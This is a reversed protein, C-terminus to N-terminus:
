PASVLSRIIPSREIIAEIHSGEGRRDCGGGAYIGSLRGDECFMGSGSGGPGGSLDSRMRTAWQLSVHGTDVAKPIGGPHGILAVVQGPQCNTDAIPAPPINQNPFQGRLNRELSVVAYDMGGHFVSELVTGIPYIDREVTELITDPTDEQDFNFRVWESGPTDFCHGATFFRNGEILTGSCGANTLGVSPSLAEIFADDVLLDSSPETVPSGDWCSNILHSCEEQCNDRLDEDQQCSSRSLRQPDYAQANIYNACEFGCNGECTVDECIGNQEFFDRDALCKTVTQTFISFCRLPNVTDDFHCRVAEIGECLDSILLEEALEPTGQCIEDHSSLANACAQSLEKDPSFDLLCERTFARDDPGISRNDERPEANTPLDCGYTTTTIFSAILVTRTIHHSQPKM